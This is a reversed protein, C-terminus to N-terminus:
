LMIIVMLERDREEKIKRKKALERIGAVGKQTVTTVM